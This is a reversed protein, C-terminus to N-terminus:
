VRFEGLHASWPSLQITDASNFSPTMEAKEGQEALVSVSGGYREWNSDIVTRFEVGVGAGEGPSGVMNSHFIASGLGLQRVQDSLNLVLLWGNRTVKDIKGEHSQHVPQRIEDESQDPETQPNLLDWRVVALLTKDVDWAHFSSRERSAGLSPCTKRLSILDKYLNFFGQHGRDHLIRGDETGSTGELVASLGIISDEFTEPAQPDPVQGSEWQFQAFEQTRGERVARALNEDGHSTFYLFPSREGYEEGMFLLPIYPLTLLLTAAMRAKEPGVLTLLREGTARNGVQDHNQICVVMRCPEIDDSPAGHRRKRFRSYEGGYVYGSNIAKVVDSVSGFDQYYGRKEGTLLAHVGHHFDDSWVGGLGFGGRNAPSRILRPDNLDSEAFLTLHRGMDRQLADVGSALEELIHYAGMDFIGHVADLRLGDLHYATLWHFANELVFRRVPSSQPGDYNIADGWPTEYRDTFYPAFLGLYNGEPGLHNYVVDLIVAVGAQHCANVLRQLAAPGGYSNQVTFPHVGDYGWNRKGPFQAVPMLEITNIGLHNKLYHLARIVGEMTGERSFTGVHLEYIIMEEAPIGRWNKNQWQFQELNVVQSPGHVGFPQHRSAPDPLVKGALPHDTHTLDHPQFGYLLSQSPRTTPPATHAAAPAGAQWNWPEDEDLQIVAVHWGDEDAPEM